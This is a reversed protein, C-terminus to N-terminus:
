GQNVARLADKLSRELDEISTWKRKKILEKLTSAAQATSRFELGSATITLSGASIGAQHSLTFLIDRGEDFFKEKKLLGFVNKSYGEATSTPIVNGDHVLVFVSPLLKTNNLNKAANAIASPVVTNAITAIENRVIQMQTISSGIFRVYDKKTPGFNDAWQKVVDAEPELLAATVPGRLDSPGYKIMWRYRGPNKARWHELAAGYAERGKTVLDSKKTPTPLPINVKKQEYLSFAGVTAYWAETDNYGGMYKALIFYEGHIGDSHAWRKHASIGHLGEGLNLNKFIKARATASGVKAARYILSRTKEDEVISFPFLYKWAEAVKTPDPAPRSADNALILNQLREHVKNLLTKLNAHTNVLHDILKGLKVAQDFGLMFQFGNVNIAPIEIGYAPGRDQWGSLCLDNDGPCHVLDIGISNTNHPDAHRGQLSTELVQQVESTGGLSPISQSTVVFHTSLKKNGLAAQVATIGGAFKAPNNKFEKENEEPIVIDMPLVYKMRWRSASDHIVIGSVPTDANGRTRNDWSPGKIGIKIWDSAEAGPKVLSCLCKIRARTQSSQQNWKRELRADNSWCHQKNKYGPPKNERAATCPHCKHLKTNCSKLAKERQKETGDAISKEEDGFNKLAESHCKLNQELCKGAASQVTPVAPGLGDLDATAYKNIDFSRKSALRGVAAGIYRVESVIDEYAPDSGNEVNGFSVRIISGCAPAPLQDNRAVFAPYLGIIWQHIRGAFADIPNEDGYQSPTPIHAHMEPIMARVVVLDLDGERGPTLAGLGTKTDSFNGQARYGEVRLVVANWVGSNAAQYKPILSEQAQKLALAMPAMTKPDLVRPNSHPKSIDNLLGPIFDAPGKRSAM